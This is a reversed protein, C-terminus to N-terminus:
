ICVICGSHTPCDLHAFFIFVSRYHEIMTVPSLLLFTDSKCPKSLLGLLCFLSTSDSDSSDSSMDSWPQWEDPDIDGKFDPDLTKSIVDIPIPLALHSHRHNMGENYGYTGWYLENGFPAYPCTRQYVFRSYARIIM